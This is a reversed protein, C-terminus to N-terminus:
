LTETVLKKNCILSVWELALPYGWIQKKHTVAELAKPLFSARFDENIKLPKLLGADSWEGIRDHAWSAIDPGKGM